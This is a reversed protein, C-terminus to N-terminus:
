SVRRRVAQMFREGREAFGSFMDLSACGPSLLVRDGPLALGAAQDVADEMDSADVRPISAPMAASIPEITTVSCISAM